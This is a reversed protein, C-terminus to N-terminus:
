CDDLQGSKASVQREVGMMKGPEYVMMGAVVGVGM